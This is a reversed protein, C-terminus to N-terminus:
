RVIQPDDIPFGGFGIESVKLDTRGLTRHRMTPGPGAVAGPDAVSGTTPPAGATALAGTM